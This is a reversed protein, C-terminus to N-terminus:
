KGFSVKPATAAGEQAKFYAKPNFRTGFFGAVAVTPFSNRKTNFRQAAENYRMRAVAIRNETGELQASLDRFQATAKLEPYRESVVLLRSLTSGLQDQAQQFKAFQDPNNPLNKPDVTARVQTAKARAEIVSTLTEKEFNAAGKVTEVLNPILDMRRQYQNEVESWQSQVAENLTNLNNYTGIASIIIIVAILVVLAILGGCGLLIWKKNMLLEKV